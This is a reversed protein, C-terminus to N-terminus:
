SFLIDALSIVPAIFPIGFGPTLIWVNISDSAIRFNIAAYLAMPFLGLWTLINIKDGIQKVNHMFIYLTAFVFFLILFRGGFSPISKGFNVFSLFLLLFSFLNKEANDKELAAFSLKIVVISFLLYYLLLDSGIQIFWSAQEFEEQRAIGYNESSYGDYRNQFAGGLFFSISQFYPTLVNPIIFSLIAIPIYIFNRNGLLFYIILIFNATLFSFHVLSAGLTLLLYRKDKFLVVHYAGYFFIWAATWMRFGNISTIPLIFVFFTMVILANLGPNAKYCDHLLDISKLYFLGFIAAFVAFLIGHYSTFRSVFFSILPEIIDVSTEDAYLGGVIEFFDSFPLKATNMLRMAYRESDSGAGGPDGIVFTLGYYILFLYVVKKAEKQDYNKIAVLLALFPWVLFLILYNRSNSISSTLFQNSYSRNM